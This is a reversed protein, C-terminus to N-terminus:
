GTWSSEGVGGGLKGVGIGVEQSTKAAGRACM